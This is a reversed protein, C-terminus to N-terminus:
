KKKALIFHHTEHHKKHYRMTHHHRNRGQEPIPRRNKVYDRIYDYNYGLKKEFDLDLQSLIFDIDEQTYRNLLLETEKAVNFQKGPHKPTSHEWKTREIVDRFDEYVPMCRKSLEDGIVNHQGDAIVHELSVHMRQQLYRDKSGEFTQDSPDETLWQKYKRTREQILNPATEAIAKNPNYTIREYLSKPISSCFKVQYDSQKGHRKNTPGPLPFCRATYGTRIFKSFTMRHSKNNMDEDYSERYMKPLWTFIDRTVVM